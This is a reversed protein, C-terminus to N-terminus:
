TEDKPPEDARFACYQLGVLIHRVQHGLSMQEGALKGARRAPQVRPSCRAATGDEPEQSVDPQLYGIPETEWSTRLSTTSSSVGTRM